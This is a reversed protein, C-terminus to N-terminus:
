SYEQFWRDLVDRSSTATWNRILWQAISETIIQWKDLPYMQCDSSDALVLRARHEIELQHKIAYNVRPCIQVLVVTNRGRM